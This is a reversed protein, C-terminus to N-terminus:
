TQKIRGFKKQLEEHREEETKETLVNVFENDAEKAPLVGVTKLILMIYHLLMRTEGNKLDSAMFLNIDCLDKYQEDTLCIGIKEWAEKSTDFLM